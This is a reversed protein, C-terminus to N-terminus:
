SGFGLRDFLVVGDNYAQVGTVRPAFAVANAAEQYVWFPLDKNLQLQVHTYAERRVGPATALRARTMADVVEPNSYGSVNTPSGPRLFDYLVPEPDNMWLGSVAMDFDGAVLRRILTATDVPDIKMHVNPYQQVRGQVYLATRNASGPAGAVMHTFTFPRTGGATLKLFAARAQEPQNEAASLQINALETTADFVGRAPTGANDYLLRNMEQSDLSNVVARRAAPDDFPPRRTNFVIMLGGNLNLRVLGLHEDQAVKGSLPDSIAALDLRDAAIADAVNTARPTVRVDIEDLYPRGPQWYRPNKRLTLSKGASREALVFPGAGVPRTRLSSPDGLTRPSAVYALSNAVTQDFNANPSPLEVTLLLPSKVTLKLNTAGVTYGSGSSPDAHIQWNAKVAAADFPTGDSFLVGPRLVLSWVRAANDPTFSQALHPKVTGTVPDTWLLPDYIASLLNGYAVAYNSASFPDLSVPDDLVALRLTGGPKPTGAPDATHRGSPGCGTSALTLLVAVLM